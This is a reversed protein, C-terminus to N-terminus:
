YDPNVAHTCEWDEGSFWGWPLSIAPPVQYIDDRLPDTERFHNYLWPRTGSWWITWTYFVGTIEDVDDIVGSSNSGPAIEFIKEDGGTM